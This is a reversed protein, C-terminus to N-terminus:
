IRSSGQPQEMGRLVTQCTSVVDIFSLIYIGLLTGATLAM